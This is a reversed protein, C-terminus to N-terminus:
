VRESGPRGEEERRRSPGLPGPPLGVPPRLRGPRAPDFERRNAPARALATRAGAETRAARLRGSFGDRLLSVIMLAAGRNLSNSLRALALIRQHGPGAYLDNSVLVRVLVENSAGLAALAVALPEGSADDVIRKALDADCDLAKALVAAFRGPQRAVASMELEELAASAIPASAKASRGIQERQAALLIEIRQNLNASLFLIANEARAPKRELLADALRRDGHVEAADRATRLLSALTARELSITENRALAILVDVDNSAALRDVLDAPPHARRAVAAAHPAGRAIARELDAHPYAVTHELLFIDAERDLRAFEALLAPPTQPCPALKRAIELRTIPDAATLQLAFTAAFKEIEDPDTPEAAVFHDSAVRLWIRRDKRSASAGLSTLFPFESLTLDRVISAATSVV